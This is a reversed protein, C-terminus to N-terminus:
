TRSPFSSPIGFCAEFDRLDDDTMGPHPCLVGGDVIYYTPAPTRAFLGLFWKILKM